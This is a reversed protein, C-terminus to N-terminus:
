MSFQIFIILTILLSIKFFTVKADDCGDSPVGMKIGHKKDFLAPNSM